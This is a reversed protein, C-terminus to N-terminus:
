RVQHKIVYLVFLSPAIQGLTYWVDMPQTFASGCYVICHPPYFTCTYTLTPQIIDTLQMAKLTVPTRTMAQTIFTPDDINAHM